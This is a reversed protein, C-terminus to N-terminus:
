GSRQSDTRIIRGRLPAIEIQEDPPVKGMEDIEAKPLVRIDEFQLFRQPLSSLTVLHRIRPKEAFV